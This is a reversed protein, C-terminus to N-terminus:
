KFRKNIERGFIRAAYGNNKKMNIKLAPRLKDAPADEEWYKGYQFGEDTVATLDYGFKMSDMGKVKFDLSRWLRGSVSAPAEGAVSARHRRRRKATSIIYTEGSRPKRLIDKKTDKILKVGLTYFGSRIGRRMNKNLNKIRIFVETNGKNAKVNIM